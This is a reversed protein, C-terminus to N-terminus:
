WYFWYLWDDRYLMYDPTCMVPVCTRMRAWLWPHTGDSTDRCRKQTVFRWTMLVFSHMYITLQPTGGGAFFLCISGSCFVINKRHESTSSVFSLRVSIDAWTRQARQTGHVCQLARGWEGTSWHFWSPFNCSVARESKYLVYLDARRVLCWRRISM